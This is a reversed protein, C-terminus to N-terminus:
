TKIFLLKYEVKEFEVKIKLTNLNRYFIVEEIEGVNRIMFMIKITMDLMCKPHQIKKNGM